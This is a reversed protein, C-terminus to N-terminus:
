TTTTQRDTKPKDVDINCCDLHWSYIILICEFLNPVNLFKWNNTSKTQLIVRQSLKTETWHSMPPQSTIVNFRWKCFFKHFNGMLLSKFFLFLFIRNTPGADLKWIGLRRFSSICMRKGGHQFECTTRRFKHGDFRNVSPMLCHSIACCSSCIECDKWTECKSFIIAIFHSKFEAYHGSCWWKCM